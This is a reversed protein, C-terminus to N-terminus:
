SFPSSIIKNHLSDLLKLQIQEIEKYTFSNQFSTRSSMIGGVISRVIQSSNGVAFTSVVFSSCKNSDRALSKIALTQTQGLANKEMILCLSKTRESKMEGYKEKGNRKKMENRAQKLTKIKTILRPKM